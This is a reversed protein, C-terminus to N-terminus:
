LPSPPPSLSFKLIYCTVKAQPVLYCRSFKRGLVSPRVAVINLPFQYGAENLTKNNFWGAKKRVKGVFMVKANPTACMKEKFLVRGLLLWCGPFIRQRANEHRVVAKGVIEIHIPFEMTSSVLCRARFSHILRWM